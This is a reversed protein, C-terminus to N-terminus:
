IKCLDDYATNLTQDSTRKLKKLACSCHARQQMTFQNYRAYVLADNRTGASFKGFHLFYQMKSKFFDPLIVNM